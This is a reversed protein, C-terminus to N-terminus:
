EKVFKKVAIGSENKVKVFYLGKSFDSINITSRGEETYIIKLLQGQLNSIEIESGSPAEVFLKDSAPNPYISVNKNFVNENVGVTFFHYPLSVSTCGYSNTVSVTYDGTETPTYSQSSAGPILSDNLYWQNGTTASSTLILSDTTSIVPVPSPNV